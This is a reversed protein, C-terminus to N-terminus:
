RETPVRLILRPIIVISSETIKQRKAEVEAWSFQVAFAFEGEQASGTSSVM